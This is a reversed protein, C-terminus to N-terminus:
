EIQELQLEKEADSITNAQDEPTGMLFENARQQMIQAEANIQAIKRQEEEIEECIDLLKQKPMTSDDPLANAYIKLQGVM